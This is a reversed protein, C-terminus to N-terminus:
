AGTARSIKINIKKNIRNITAVSYEMIEACEELTTDNRLLFLEKERKSFNCHEILYEVEEQILDTIKIM